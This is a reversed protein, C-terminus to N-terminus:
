CAVSTVSRVPRSMLRSVVTRNKAGCIMITTPLTMVGPRPKGSPGNAESSSSRSYTSRASAEFWISASSRRIIWETNSRLSVITLCTMTGRGSTIKMSACFVSRWAVDSASREPNLLIGTTPVPPSSSM